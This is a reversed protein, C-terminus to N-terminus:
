DLLGWVVLSSIYGCKPGRFNPTWQGISERRLNLPIITFQKLGEVYKIRTIFKASFPMKESSKPMESGWFHLVPQSRRVMRTWWVDTLSVRIRLKM